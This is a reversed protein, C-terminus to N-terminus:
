KQLSFALALKVVLALGRLVWIPSRKGLLHVVTEADIITSMTLMKHQLLNAAVVAALFPVYRWMARLLSYLADAYSLLANGRLEHTVLAEVM